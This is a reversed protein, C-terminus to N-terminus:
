AAIERAAPSTTLANPNPALGKGALFEVLAVEPRGPRVRTSERRVGDGDLRGHLYFFAKGAAAPHGHEHGNKLRGKSDRGRTGRQDILLRLHYLREFFVREAVDSFYHKHFETPTLGAAAEIANVVRESRVARHEARDRADETEVLRQVIKLIDRSPLATIDTSRAVEAERTRVAFYTQAAAVEPKRADGNMAVMYAGYRTLRYDNVVRTAGSGIEVMKGADAVHDQAAMGSNEIAAVAREVSDELRRWQDYGLMQQLDRASWFEGRDDVQKVHDFPSAGHRLQAITSSM